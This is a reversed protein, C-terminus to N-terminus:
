TVIHSKSSLNQLEHRSILDLDADDVSSNPLCSNGLGARYNDELALM